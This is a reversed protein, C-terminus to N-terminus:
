CAMEKVIGLRDDSADYSSGGKEVCCLASGGTDGACTCSQSARRSARGMCGDVATGSTTEEVEAKFMGGSCVDDDGVALCCERRASGGAKSGDSIFKRPDCFAFGCKMAGTVAPITDSTVVVMTALTAVVGGGVFGRGTGLVRGVLWVIVVM